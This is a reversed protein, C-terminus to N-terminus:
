DTKSASFVLKLREYYHIIANHYLTIDNKVRPWTCSVVDFNVDYLPQM